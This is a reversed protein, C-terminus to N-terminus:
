ITGNQAVKSSEGVWKWKRSSRHLHVDEQTEDGRIRTCAMQECAADWANDHHLISRDGRVIEQLGYSAQPFKISVTSADPESKFPDLLDKM